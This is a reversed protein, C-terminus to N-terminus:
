IISCIASMDLVFSDFTCPITIFVIYFHFERKKKKTKKKKLASRLGLIIILLVKLTKWTLMDATETAQILEILTTEDLDQVSQFRLCSKGISIIGGGGGGKKSKIATKKSALRQKTYGDLVYKAGNVRGCFHLSISSSKNNGKSKNQNISIGIKVWDGQRGSKYQYHYKGYGLKDKFDLTPELSPAHLRILSHLGQTYRCHDM